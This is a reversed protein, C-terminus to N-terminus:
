TEPENGGPRKIEAFHHFPFQFSLFGYFSLSHTASHYPCVSVEFVKFEPGLLFIYVFAAATSHRDLGTTTNLRKSIMKWCVRGLKSGTICFPFALFYAVAGTKSTDRVFVYDINQRPRRMGVIGVLYKGM